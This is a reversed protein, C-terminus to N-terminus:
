QDLIEYGATMRKIVAQPFLTRVSTLLEAAEASSKGAYVAIFTQILVREGSGDLKGPFDYDVADLNPCSYSGFVKRTPHPKQIRLREREISATHDDADCSEEEYTKLIVAYFPVSKYQKGAKLRAPLRFPLEYAAFKHGASHCPANPDPCVEFGAPQPAPPAASIEKKRADGKVGASGVSPDTFASHAFGPILLFVWVAFLKKKM